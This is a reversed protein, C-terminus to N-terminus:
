ERRDYLFEVLKGCIEEAAEAAFDANRSEAVIHISDSIEDPAIYVRSKGSCVFVAGNSELEASASHEMVRRMAQGKRASPCAISRSIKHLVPLFRLIESMASENLYLFECIRVVARVPDFCLAYQLHSIPTNQALLCSELERRNRRTVSGGLSKAVLNVVASTETPVMIDAGHVASLAILSVLGWSQDESLRKGRDDTLRCEGSASIEMAFDLAHSKVLESLYSAENTFLFVIGLMHGLKKLTDCLVQSGTCIGVAFRLRKYHTSLLVNQLYETSIDVTEVPLLCKNSIPFIESKSELACVVSRLIGKSAPASDKGLLEIWIKEKEVSLLMAGDACVRRVAYKTAGRTRDGCLQLVKAGAGQLGYLVATQLREDRLEGSLSLLVKAQKGLTEAFAFALRFVLEETVEEPFDGSLVHHRLLETGQMKQESVCHKGCVVTQYLHANEETKACRWVVCDQLFSGDAIEARDGIVCYPAIRASPSIQCGDGLLIGQRLSEGELGVSIKGEFVDRHCRKYASVSGVSCWYGGSPYAFFRRDRRLLKPFLDSSIEFFDDPSIQELVTKEFLYIGTNVMDTCVEDWCPQEMMHLVSGDLASIVTEFETPTDSSTIVMSAEAQKEKHFRVAEALNIDTLMEGDIVLFTDELYSAVLKLSAATGMSEKAHFYRLTVGYQKGDGFYEFVEESPCYLIPFIETIEYQKLWDITYSLLPRNMVSLMPKSCVDTLPRLNRGGRGVLIIAQM